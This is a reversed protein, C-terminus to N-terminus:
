GACEPPARMIISTSMTSSSGSARWRSCRRNRPSGSRLSSGGHASPAGRDRRDPLQLRVQQEEVHLHWAHGTEFHERRHTRLGHRHHDEDSRVVPECQLREFGLRQVVQQFGEARLADVLRQRTRAIEEGAARAALELLLVVAQQAAVAPTRSSVQTSTFFRSRTM